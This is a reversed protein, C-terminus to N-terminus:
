THAGAKGFLFYPLDNLLERWVFCWPWVPEGRSEQLYSPLDDHQVEHCDQIRKPPLVCSIKHHGVRLYPHDTRVLIM